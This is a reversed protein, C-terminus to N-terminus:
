KKESKKKFPSKHSEAASFTAMLISLLVKFSSKNNTSINVISLPRLLIKENAISQPFFNESTTASTTQPSNFFEVTLIQSFKYHSRVIHSYKQALM